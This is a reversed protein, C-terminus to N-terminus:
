LIPRYKFGNKVKLKYRDIVWQLADYYKNEAKAFERVELLQIVERLYNDYLLRYVKHKDIDMNIKDDIVSGIKQYERYQDAGGDRGLIIEEKYKIMTALESKSLVGARYCMTCIWSAGGKPTENTNTRRHIWDVIDVAGILDVADGYPVVDYSTIYQENGEDDLIANGEDDTYLESTEVLKDAQVNWVPANEIHEIMMKKAIGSKVLGLKRATYFNRYYSKGFDYKSHVPSQM